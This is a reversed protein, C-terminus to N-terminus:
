DDEGPVSVIETVIELIMDKIKDGTLETWFKSYEMIDGKGRRVEVVYSDAELLYVQLVVGIMGKSTMKCAKIRLQEEFVKLECEMEALAESLKGVIEVGVGKTKFQFIRKVRAESQTRTMSNQAELDRIRAAEATRPTMPVAPEPAPAADVSEDLSENAGGLSSDVGGAEDEDVYGEPFAEFMDETTLTGGKTFWTHQM